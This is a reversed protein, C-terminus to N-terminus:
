NLCFTSGFYWLFTEAIDIRDIVNSVFFTKVDTTAPNEGNM